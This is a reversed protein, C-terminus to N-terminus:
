SLDAQLARVLGEAPPLSTLGAVSILRDGFLAHVGDRASFAQDGLGSLPTPNEAAQSAKDTSLFNQYATAGGQTMVTVSIGGTGSATFYDCTYGNGAADDQERSTTLAKGSLSAAKATPITACVNVPAASKGTTPPSTQSASGGQTSPANTAAANTPTSAPGAKTSSSGCAAVGASLTLVALVTRARRTHDAALMGLRMPSHTM